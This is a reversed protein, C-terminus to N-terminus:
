DAFVECDVRGNPFEIISKDTANILHGIVRCETFGALEQTADGDITLIFAEGELYAKGGSSKFASDLAQVIDNRDTDFVYGADKDTNQNSNNGGADSEGCGTLILLLPLTLTAGVFGLRNKATKM